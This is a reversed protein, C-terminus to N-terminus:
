DAEGSTKSPERPLFHSLLATGAILLLWVIFLYIVIQPLGFHSIPRNFVMVLPPVMMLAGFLTLVLM